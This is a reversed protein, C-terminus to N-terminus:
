RQSRIVALRDHRGRTRVISNCCHARSLIRGTRRGNRSISQVRNRIRNEAAGTGRLTLRFEDRSVEHLRIKVPVVRVSDAGNGAIDAIGASSIKDEVLREGNREVGAGHENAITTLACALDHRMIRHREPNRSRLFVSGADDAQPVTVVNPADTM